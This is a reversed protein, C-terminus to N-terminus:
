SLAPPARPQAALWAHQTRPAALFLRPVESLVPVLAVLMPAPLPGIDTAHLSCYPCHELAHARAPQPDPATTAADTAADPTAEGAVDVWKSGLASCVEIWAPSAQGQLAHTLAPALSMLLIAFVAM